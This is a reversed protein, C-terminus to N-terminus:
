EPNCRVAWARALLPATRRVAPERASAQREREPWAAWAAEGSARQGQWVPLVRRDGRGRWAVPPRLRRPGACLVGFGCPRDCQRGTLHLAFAACRYLARLRSGSVYADDWVLALGPAPWWRLAAGVTALFGASLTMALLPTREHLLAQLPWGIMALVLAAYLLLWGLQLPGRRLLLGLFNDDLAYGLVRAAGGSLCM